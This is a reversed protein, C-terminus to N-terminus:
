RDSSLGKPNWYELKATKWYSDMHIDYGERVYFCQWRIWPAASTRFVLWVNCDTFNLRWHYIYQWFSRSREIVEDPPPAVNPEGTAGTGIPYELYELRPPEADDTLISVVLQYDLPSNEVPLIGISVFTSAIRQQITDSAVWEAATAKIGRDSYARVWRQDLGMEEGAITLRELVSDGKGFISLYAALHDRSYDRAKYMRAKAEQYLDIYDDRVLHRRLVELPDPKGASVPKSLLAMFITPTLEEKSSRLTRLADILDAEYERESM